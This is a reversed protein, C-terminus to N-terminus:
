SLFNNVIPMDGYQKVLRTLASARTYFGQNYKKIIFQKLADELEQAEKEDEAYIHLAITYPQLRM